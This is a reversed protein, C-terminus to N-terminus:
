VGPAGHGVEIFDDQDAVEGAVRLELIQGALHSDRLEPQRHVAFEFGGGAFLALFDAEDVAAGEAFRPSIM